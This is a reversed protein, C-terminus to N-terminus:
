VTSVKTPMYREVSCTRLVHVACLATRETTSVQGSKNNSQEMYCLVYLSDSCLCYMYLVHMDEPRLEKCHLIEKFIDLLLFLPPLLLLPLFSFHLFSRGGRADTPGVSCYQSSHPQASAVLNGPEYGPAIRIYQIDLFAFLSSRSSNSTPPSTCVASDKSLLMGKSTWM